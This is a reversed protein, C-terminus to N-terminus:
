VEGRQVIDPNKLFYGLIMAAVLPILWLGCIVAMSILWGFGRFELPARLSYSTAITGSLVCAATWAIAFGQLLSWAFGGRRLEGPLLKRWAFYFPVVPVFAFFVGFAWAGANHMDRRSADGWILVAAILHFTGIIYSEFEISLVIRTAFKALSVVIEFAHQIAGFEWAFFTAALGLPVTLGLWFLMHKKDDTLLPSRPKEDPIVIKEPIIISKRCHPCRLRKGRSRRWETETLYSRKRCKPCKFDVDDNM